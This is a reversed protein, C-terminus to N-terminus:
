SLGKAWGQLDVFSLHAYFNTRKLTIRRPSISPRFSLYMRNWALSSCCLLIYKHSTLHMDKEMAGGCLTGVGDSLLNSVDPKSVLVASMLDNLTSRVEPHSEIYLANSARLDAQPLPPFTPSTTPQQYSASWPNFLPTCWIFLQIPHDCQLEM